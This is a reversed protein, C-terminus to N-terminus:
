IEINMCNDCIEKHRNYNCDNQKKLDKIITLAYEFAFDDPFEKQMQKIATIYSDTNIDIADKFDRVASM